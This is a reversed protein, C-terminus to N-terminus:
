CMLFAPASNDGLPFSRCILARFSFSCPIQSDLGEWTMALSGACDQATGSGAAGGSGGTSLCCRPTRVRQSRFGQTARGLDASLDSRFRKLFVFGNDIQVTYCLWKGTAVLTCTNQRDLGKRGISLIEMGLADDVFLALRVLAAVGNFDKSM